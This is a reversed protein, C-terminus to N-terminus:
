EGSADPADPILLDGASEVTLAQEVLADFIHHDQVQAIRQFVQAPIEGFRHALLRLLLDRKGSLEGEEHGEERGEERGEARGTALGEEIGRQMAELELREWKTLEVDELEEMVTGSADVMVATPLYYDILKLLFLKDGETLESAMVDNLASLKLLPRREDEVDMLAALANAVPEKYTMYEEGELDRIGVQGYRFTLLKRELVMETYERWQVGGAGRRLVLAIPFVPHQRLVRLLAYYEFMRRPFSQQPNAEIEIHILITEKEGSLAEVEAVVDTIRLTQDPLNIILEKDLFRVEDLKLRRAERPFFLRLFQPLFRHFFEKFLRDHSSSAARETQESM